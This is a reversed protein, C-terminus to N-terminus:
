YWNPDARRREVHAVLAARIGADAILGDPGIADRAVPIPVCAPEAIDAGVYGLV